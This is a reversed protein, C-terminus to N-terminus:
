PRRGGLGAARELPPLVTRHRLRNEVYSQMVAVHTRVLGVVQELEHIRAQQADHHRAIVDARTREYTRLGMALLLLVLPVFAGLLLLLFRRGLGGDAHDVGAEGRAM